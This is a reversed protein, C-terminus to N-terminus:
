LEKQLNPIMIVNEEARLIYIVWSGPCPFSCYITKDQIHVCIFSVFTKTIFWISKEFCFRSLLFRFHDLYSRPCCLIKTDLPKSGVHIKMLQKQVYFNCFPKILQVFIINSFIVANPTFELFYIYMTALFVKAPFDISWM